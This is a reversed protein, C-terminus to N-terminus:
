IGVREKVDKVRDRAVTVETRKGDNLRVVLKGGFWTHVELIYEINIISGRHVRIFKKPDLKQELESITFDVIYERAPTAALTVKDEAYFHTVKAVEVFEIKEGMRSPLRAPFDPEAVAGGKVARALEAALAAYDPRPANRTELLREIKTLARGLLAPEIPKLLYDISLTEFARLAYQSYATTFVILPQPDLREILDFGTLGPMEVDVFLADCPKLALERVAEVPDTSMGSITVRGAEEIMRSLRKLALPEDDVLFVTPKNNM